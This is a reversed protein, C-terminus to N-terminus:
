CAQHLRCPCRGSSTAQPRPQLISCASQDCLMVCCTTCHLLTTSGRSKSDKRGVLPRPNMLKKYQFLRPKPTALAWRSYCNRHCAEFHRACMPRCTRSPTRAAKAPAATPHVASRGCSRLSSGDLWLREIGQKQPLSKDLVITTRRARQCPLAMHRIPALHPWNESMHGRTSGRTQTGFGGLSGSSKSSGGSRLSTGM